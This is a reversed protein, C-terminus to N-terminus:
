ATVAKIAAKAEAAAAGVETRLQFDAAQRAAWSVSDAPDDGVITTLLDRLDVVAALTMCLEVVTNQNKDKIAVDHGHEGTLFKRTTIFADAGIFVRNTNGFTQYPLATM